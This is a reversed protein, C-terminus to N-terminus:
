KIKIYYNSITDFDILERQGKLHPYKGCNYYVVLATNPMDNDILSMILKECEGEYPEHNVISDGEKLENGQKDKIM